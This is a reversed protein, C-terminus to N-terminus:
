DPLESILLVVEGGEGSQREWAMGMTRLMPYLLVPEMPLRVKLRDGAPLDAVADLIRELPEPPPLDRLDLMHEM